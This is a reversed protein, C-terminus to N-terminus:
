AAVHTILPGANEVRDSDSKAVNLYYPITSM